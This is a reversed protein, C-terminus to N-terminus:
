KVCLKQNQGSWIFINNDIVGTEDSAWMDEYEQLDVGACVGYFIVALVVRLVSDM